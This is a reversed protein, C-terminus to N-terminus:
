PLNSRNPFADLYVPTRFSHVIILSSKIVKILGGIRFKLRGNLFTIFTSSMRFQLFHTSLSNVNLCLNYKLNFM